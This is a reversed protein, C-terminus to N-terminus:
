RTSCTSRWNRMSSCLLTDDGDISDVVLRPLGGAPRGHGQPGIRVLGFALFEVSVLPVAEGLSGAVVDAFVQGGVLDVADEVQGDLAVHDAFQIVVGLQRGYGRPQQALLDGAEGVHRHRLV